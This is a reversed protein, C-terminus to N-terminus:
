WTQNIDMFLRGKESYFPLFPNPPLVSTPPSQVSYIISLLVIFLEESTWQM